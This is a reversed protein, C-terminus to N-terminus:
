FDEHSQGKAEDDWAEHEAADAKPVAADEQADPAKHMQGEAEDEAAGAEPVDADAQDVPM